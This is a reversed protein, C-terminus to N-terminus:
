RRFKDNIYSSLHKAWLEHGKETPHFDVLEEKTDLSLLYTLFMDKFFVNNYIKNYEVLINDIELRKLTDTNSSNRFDEIFTNFKPSELLQHKNEDLVQEKNEYFSNFFIHKINLSELFYHLSINNLCHRTIFEEPYWHNKVYLKYFTLLEERESTWHDLEGPYLCEWEGSDNEHWKYFFDKREPSSWGIVVLIDEPKNNKLLEIIDNFTRRFIRDNSAGAHSNNIVEVGLEKGIKHPWVRPLRYPKNAPDNVKSLNDGFLEPDVIDGCTWSDGNAYLTKFNLRAM